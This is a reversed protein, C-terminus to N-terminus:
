LTTRAKNWPASCSPAALVMTWNIRRFVEPTVVRIANRREGAACICWGPSNDQNFTRIRALTAKKKPV